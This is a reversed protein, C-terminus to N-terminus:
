ININIHIFYKPHHALIREKFHKALAIMTCIGLTDLHSESLYAQPIVETGHYLTKVLVSARRSPAADLFVQIDQIEDNPHLKLFLSSIDKSITSLISDQYLKREETIVDGLAKLRV